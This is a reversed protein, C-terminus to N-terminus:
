TSVKADFQTKTEVLAAKINKLLAAKINKLVQPNEDANDDNADHKCASTFWYCDYCYTRETKGSKSVWCMISVNEGLTQYCHYCPTKYQDEM